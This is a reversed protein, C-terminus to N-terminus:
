IQCKALHRHYEPNIPTLWANRFHVIGVGAQRNTHPGEMQRSIVVGEDRFLWLETQFM